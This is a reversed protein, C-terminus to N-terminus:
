GFVVVNADVTVLHQTGEAEIIECFSFRALNTVLLEEHALFQLPENVNVPVLDRM